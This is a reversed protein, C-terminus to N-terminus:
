LQWIKLEAFIATVPYVEVPEGKHFIKKGHDESPLERFTGWLDRPYWSLLLNPTPKFEYLENHNELSDSRAMFGRKAAKSCWKLAEHLDQNTGRGAKNCIAAAWQGKVYGGRASQLYWYFMQNKRNKATRGPSEIDQRIKNAVEFQARPIGRGAAFRVSSYEFQRPQPTPRKLHVPGLYGMGPQPVYQVCHATFYAGLSHGHYAAYRFLEWAKASSVDFDQGSQLYKPDNLFLFGLVFTEDPTRNSKTELYKSFEPINVLRKWIDGIMLGQSAVHAQQLPQDDNVMDYAIKVFEKVLRKYHYVIPIEKNSLTSM